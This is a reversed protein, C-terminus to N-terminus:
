GTGEISGRFERDCGTGARWLDHRRKSLMGPGRAQISRRRRSTWSVSLTGLSTHAKRALAPPAEDGWEEISSAV